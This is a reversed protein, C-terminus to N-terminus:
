KIPQAIFKKKLELTQWKRLCIVLEGGAFYIVHVPSCWSVLSEWYVMDYQCFIGESWDSSPIQFAEPVPKTLILEVPDGM